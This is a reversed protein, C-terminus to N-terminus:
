FLTLHNGIYLISYMIKSLFVELRNLFQKFEIKTCVYNWLYEVAQMRFGSKLMLWNFLPWIFQSRSISFYSVMGLSTTIILFGTELGFIGVRPM